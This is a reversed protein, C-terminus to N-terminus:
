RDLSFDRKMVNNMRINAKDYEGTKYYLRALLVERETTPYLNYAKQAYSLATGYRKLSAYAKAAEAYNQAKSNSDQTLEAEAIYDAAARLYDGSTGSKISRVKEIPERANEQIARSESEREDITEDIDDRTAIDNKDFRSERSYRVERREIDAPNDPRQTVEEDGPLNLAGFVREENINAPLYSYAQWIVLIFIFFIFGAMWYYKSNSLNFKEM